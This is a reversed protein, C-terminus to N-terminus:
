ATQLALPNDAGYGTRSWNVGKPIDIKTDSLWHSSHLLPSISKSLRVVSSHLSPQFSFESIWYRRTLDRRENTLFFNAKTTIIYYYKEKEPIQLVKTHRQPAFNTGSVSQVSSYKNSIMSRENWNGTQVRSVTSRGEGRGEYRVRQVWIFIFLKKHYM